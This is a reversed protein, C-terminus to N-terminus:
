LFVKIIIIIKFIRNSGIKSNGLQWVCNQINLKRAFKMLDILQLPQFNTVNYELDIVATIKNKSFCYKPM